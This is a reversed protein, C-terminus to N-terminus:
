GSEIRRKSLPQHQLLKAPLVCAVARVIRVGAELDDFV